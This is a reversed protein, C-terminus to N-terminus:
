LSISIDIGGFTHTGVNTEGNTPQISRVSYSSFFCLLYVGLSGEPPPPPVCIPSPPHGDILQGSTAM